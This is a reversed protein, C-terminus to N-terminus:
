RAGDEPEPAKGKEEAKTLGEEELVDMKKGRDGCDVQPSTKALVDELLGMLGGELSDRGLIQFGVEYPSSEKSFLLAEELKAGDGDGGQPISFQDKAAEQPSDLASDWSKVIPRTVPEVDDEHEEAAHEAKVNDDENDGSITTGSSSHLPPMKADEDEDGSSEEGSELDPESGKLSKGDELCDMVVPEVRKESKEQEKSQFRNHKVMASPVGGYAEADRGSCAAQSTEGETFHTPSHFASVPHAFKLSSGAMVSVLNTGIRFYV